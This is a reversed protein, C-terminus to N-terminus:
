LVELSEVRGESRKEGAAQKIEEALQFKTNPFHEVFDKAFRKPFVVMQVDELVFEMSVPVRWEREFYSNPDDIFTFQKVTSRLIQVRWALDHEKTGVKTKGVRRCWDDILDELISSHAWRGFVREDDNVTGAVYIAPQAGKGLLFNRDFALGTNGYHRVHYGLLDFPIDAFCIHQLDWTGRQIGNSDQIPKGKLPDVNTRVLRKETLIKCLTLYADNESRNRGCFHWYIESHHSPFSKM